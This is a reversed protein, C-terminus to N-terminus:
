SFRHGIAEDREGSVRLSLSLFRRENLVITLSVVCAGRSLLRALYLGPPLNIPNWTSSTTGTPLNATFVTQGFVNVISITAAEVPGSFTFRTESSVPNPFNSFTFAAGTHDHLGLNLNMSLKM